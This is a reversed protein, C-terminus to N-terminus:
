KIRAIIITHDDWDRVIFQRIHYIYNLNKFRAIGRRIKAKLRIKDNKNLNTTSIRTMPYPYGDRHPGPKLKFHVFDIANPDILDYSKTHSKTM